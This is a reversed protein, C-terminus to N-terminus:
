EHYQSLTLLNVNRLKVLNNWVSPFVQSVDCQYFHEKDFFFIIGNLSATKENKENEDFDFDNTFHIVRNWHTYITFCSKKKVILDL